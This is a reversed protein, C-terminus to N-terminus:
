LTKYTLDIQFSKQDLNTLEEGIIHIKFKPKKCPLAKYYLFIFM